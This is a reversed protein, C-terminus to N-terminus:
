LKMIYFLAHFPPLVGSVTHTHTGSASISHSHTEGNGTNEIFQNGSNVNGFGVNTQYSGLLGWEITKGSGSGINASNAGAWYRHTHAPLQNVTLATDGVQGGHSHDGSAATTYSSAGGTAGNSYTAGAGLVFRDRLDPTGNTGDCIAWGIPVSASNGFWMTIVGAPISGAGASINVSVSSGAGTVTVGTGVFNMTTVGAPTAQTVGEDQVTIGSLGAAYGQSRVWATTALRTSNDATVPSPATPTGTFAPSNLLAYTADAYSRNVAHTAASPAPVEIIGTFIHSGTHTDGTRFARNSEVTSVRNTLVALDGASATGALRNSIVDQVFKTNAVQQNSLTLDGINPATPVGLLVSNNFQSKVYGVTALRANNTEGAPPTTAVPSGTLVTDFLQNKVYETTALATSNDGTIPTLGTASGTITVAGALRVTGVVDLTATPATTGIGVRQTQAKVTVTDQPGASTTTQIVVDRNVENNIFRLNGLGDRNLLITGTQGLEVGDNVRLKGAITGNQDNRVVKSSTIGTSTGDDLADAKSAKGNFIFGFNPDNGLNLGPKIVTGSSFGLPTDAAVFDADSSAIAFDINDVLFRLIFHQNGATDLITDGIVRTRADGSPGILKFAGRSYVYLKDTNTDFWLESDYATTPPSNQFFGTVVTKFPATPDSSSIPGLNVKLKNQNKDFWLQGTLSNSPPVTSAFNEALSVLNENYSEGFSVYNKGILSLGARRQITGQPVSVLFSGDTKNVNYNVAM